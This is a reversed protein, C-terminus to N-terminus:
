TRLQSYRETADFREKANAEAPVEAGAEGNPQTSVAPEDESRDPRTADWIIQPPAQAAKRDLIVVSRLILSLAYSIVAARRPSIRGKAVLIVINSLVANIDEATELVPQQADFIEASLDVTDQLTDTTKGAQAAHRFCLGTAPDQVPLRCRGNKRSRRRCRAAGRPVSVPNSTAPTQSHQQEM